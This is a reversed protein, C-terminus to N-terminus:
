TLGSDYPSPETVLLIRSRPELEFPLLALGRRGEPLVADREFFGRGGEPVRQRERDRVRCMGLIFVPAYEQAHGLSMAEHHDSM